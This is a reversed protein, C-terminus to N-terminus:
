AKNASELGRALRRAAPLASRLLQLQQVVQHLRQARLQLLSRQEMDPLPGAGNRSQRLEDNAAPPALPTGVSSEEAEM